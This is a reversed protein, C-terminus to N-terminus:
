SPEGEILYPMCERALEEPLDPSMMHLPASAMSGDPLVRSGIKPWYSQEPSVPVAFLVPGPREMLDRVEADSVWERDLQKFPLGWAAALRGWDPIGLGPTRM